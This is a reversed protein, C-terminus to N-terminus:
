QYDYRESLRALDASTTRGIKKTTGNIQNQLERQIDSPLYFGLHLQDGNYAVIRKQITLDEFLQIMKIRKTLRRSGIKRRHTEEWDNLYEIFMDNLEDDKFFRADDRKTLEDLREDIAGIAQSPPLKKLGRLFQIETKM